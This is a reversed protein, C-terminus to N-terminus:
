IRERIPPNRRRRLTRFHADEAQAGALKVVVFLDVLTQLSRLVSTEVPDRRFELREAVFALWEDNLELHLVLLVDIAAAAVDFDETRVLVLRCHVTVSSIMDHEARVDAARGFVDVGDEGVVLWWGCVM